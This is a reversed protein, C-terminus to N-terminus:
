KSRAAWSELQDYFGDTIAVATAADRSLIARGLRRHHDVAFTLRDPNEWLRDEHPIGAYALIIETFVHLVPDGSMEAVLSCFEVHSERLRDASGDGRDNAFIELRASFAENLKECALFAAERRLIRMMRTTQAVAVGKARLLIAVSKAVGTTDPVRSFYGGHWGRRVTLLQQYELLRAAQRLTQKSVAFRAVLENESGLLTEESHRIVEELLQGAIAEPASPIKPINM